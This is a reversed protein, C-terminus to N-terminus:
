RLLVMKKIGTHGGAILRYFYVGSPLQAGSFNVFHNGATEYRSVLVTVERGLADWVKLSVYGDKALEYSIITTPNFPNPYNQMLTFESPIAKEQTEKSNLDTVPVELAKFVSDTYSKLNNAAYVMIGAKLRSAPQWAAVNTAFDLDNNDILVGIMTQHVLPIRGSISVDLYDSDFYAMDMLFNLHSMIDKSTGIDYGPEGWYGKFMAAIYM